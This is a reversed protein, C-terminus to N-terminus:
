LGHRLLYWGLKVYEDHVAIQGDERTWWNAASYKMDPVPCMAVIVPTTRLVRRFIWLARRTHFESTVVIVRRVSHTQAFSRFLRAEDFTSSVGGPQKLEIIRSDPVGLKRLVGTSMDTTNPWLGLTVMPSDESRAIAVAPALGRVFLEAARAPRHNPDGNLVLILDSPELGDAVVLSRAPLPLLRGRFSYALLSFLIGVLMVACLRAGWRSRRKIATEPETRNM